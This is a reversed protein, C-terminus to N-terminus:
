PIRLFGSAEVTPNLGSLRLQTAVEAQLNALAANTSLSSNVRAFAPESGQGLRVLDTLVAIAVVRREEPANRWTKIAVSESVGAELADAMLGLEGASHATVEASRLAAAARVLGALRAEVASAIRERPVRKAEGEAVKNKLLSVPLEARAAAEMAASIRADPTATQALAPLTMWLMFCLISAVKSRM